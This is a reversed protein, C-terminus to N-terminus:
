CFMVVKGVHIVLQVGAESSLIINASVLLELAVRTHSKDSSGTDAGVLVAIDLATDTLASSLSTTCVVSLSVIAPIFVNVEDGTM